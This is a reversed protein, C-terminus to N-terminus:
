HERGKLNSMIERILVKNKDQDLRVDDGNKKHHRFRAYM